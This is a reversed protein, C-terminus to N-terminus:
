HQSHAYNTDSGDCQTCGQLCNLQEHMAAGNVHEAGSMVSHRMGACLEPMPWDIINVNFHAPLFIYCSQGAVFTLHM